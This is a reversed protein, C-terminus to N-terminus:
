RVAPQSASVSRCIPQVRVVCLESSTDSRGPAMSQKHLQVAPLLCPLHPPNCDISHLGASSRPAPTSSPSPQTAQRAGRGSDNAAGPPPSSLPDGTTCPQRTFVRLWHRGASGVVQHNSVLAQLGNGDCQLLRELRAIVQGNRTSNHPRSGAANADKQMRNGAADADIQPRKVRRSAWSFLAGLRM